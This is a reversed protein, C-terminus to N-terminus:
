ETLMDKTVLAALDLQVGNTLSTPQHHTQSPMKQQKKSVLEADSKEGRALTSAWSTKLSELMLIQSQM